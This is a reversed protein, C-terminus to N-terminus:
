VDLRFYKIVGLVKRRDLVDVGKAIISGLIDDSQFFVEVGDENILSFHIDDLLLECDVSKKKKFNEYM